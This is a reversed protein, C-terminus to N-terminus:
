HWRATRLVRCPLRATYWTIPWCPLADTGIDAQWVHREPEEPLRVHPGMLPHVAISTGTSSSGQGDRTLFLTKHTWTPLPADVLHGSPYLVQRKYM